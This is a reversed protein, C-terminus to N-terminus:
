VVSSVYSSGSFIFTYNNRYPQVFGVNGIDWVVEFSPFFAGGGETVAGRVKLADGDQRRHIFFARTMSDYGAQEAEGCSFCQFGCAPFKYAVNAVDDAQCKDTLYGEAASKFQVRDEVLMQVFDPFFYSESVEQVPVGLTKNRYLISVSKDKVDDFWIHGTQDRVTKNCVAEAGLCGGRYMFREQVQTLDSTKQGFSVHVLFHFEPQRLSVFEKILNASEENTDKIYEYLTDVTLNPVWDSLREATQFINNVVEAAANEMEKIGSEWVEDSSHDVCSGEVPPLCVTHLFMANAMGRMIFLGFRELFLQDSIKNQQAALSLLDARKRSAYECGLCAYGYLNYFIDEPTIYPENCLARFRPEYYYAALNRARTTLAGAMTDNRTTNVLNNFARTASDLRAALEDLAIDGVLLSIDLFGQRIQIQVSTLKANVQQFSDMMATKLMDESSELGFLPGFVTLGASVFSAAAGLAGFVSAFKAVQSIVGATASILSLADTAISLASTANDFTISEARIEVANTANFRPDNSPIFFGEPDVMCLAITSDMTLMGENPESPTIESPAPESPTPESPTPESPMPESPTPESPTPESPTPESPKPESPTPESLIPESRTPSSQPSPKGSKGQLPVGRGAGMSSGDHIGYEQTGFFGSDTTKVELLRAAENKDPQHGHLVDNEGVPLSGDNLDENIKNTADSADGISGQADVSDKRLAMDKEANPVVKSDLSEGLIWGLHEAFPLRRLVGQLKSSVASGDADGLFISDDKSKASGANHKRLSLEEIARAGTIIWDLLLFFCFLVQPAFGRWM